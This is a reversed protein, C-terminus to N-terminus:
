LRFGVGTLLWQSRFDRHTESEVAIDAEFGLPRAYTLFGFFDVRGLVGVALQPTLVMGTQSQWGGLPALLRATFSVYAPGAHRTVIYYAGPLLGLELGGGHSWREDDHLQAYLDLSSCFFLVPVKLELAIGPGEPSKWAYQLFGEASPEYIAPTAPNTPHRDDRGPPMYVGFGALGGSLGRTLRANSRTSTCGAGAVVLLALVPLSAVIRAGQVQM